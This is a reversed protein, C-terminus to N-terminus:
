DIGGLLHTVDESKGDITIAGGVVSLNPLVEDNKGGGAERPRAGKGWGGM